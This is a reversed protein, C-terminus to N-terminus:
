ARLLRAMVAMQAWLRNEAEDFIASQKGHAVDKTVELGYYIPMCHLFMADPKARAMLARDVTYGRFDQLRQEKEAEDGMSVWTDTAVVDAGEVAQRPDDLVEVKTGHAAKRALQVYDEGPHYEEPCALRVHMGAMAAGVLYSRAMNNGDGVYAFTLGRLSGKREQITQWDALIQCPHERESLGNIVPARGHRALEELDTHRFCRYMLLDCYRSLVQATDEISERKGLQIDQPGLFVADGGLLRIGVEFSVRTRLSPKEFVLGLQKRPFPAGLTGAKHCSKLESAERLLAELEGQADLMTLFHKM